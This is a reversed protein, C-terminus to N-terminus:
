KGDWYEVQTNNYVPIYVGYGCNKNISSYNGAILNNEVEKEVDFLITPSTYSIESKNDTSLTKGLTTLEGGIKCSTIASGTLDPVMTMAKRVESNNEDLEYYNMPCVAVLSRNMKYALMRQFYGTAYVSSNQLRFPRLAFGLVGSWAVIPRKGNNIKCNVICNNIDVHGGFGIFGAAVACNGPLLANDGTIDYTQVTGTNSCNVLTTYDKSNGMLAGAFGGTYVKDKAETVISANVACNYIDGTNNCGDFSIKFGDIKQPNNLVNSSIPAGIGLIGGVCVPHAKLGTPSTIYEADITIKGSNDCNDFEVSSNATRIRGAIGGLGCLHMGTTENAGSKPKITIPAENSCDKIILKCLASSVSRADGVIGGISVPFSNSSVDIIGSIAGKNVCSTIEISTEEESDYTPLVAAFASVYANSSSIEYTVVMENVCETIKGGAHLLYVFPAGNENLTLNGALTLNRIEGSVEYFLSSTANKRTITKGNGDFIYKFEKTISKLEVEDDNIDAGLTITNSGDGIWRYIDWDKTPTDNIFDAFENWDKASMIKGPGPNFKPTFPIIVGGKGALQTQSAPIKYSAFKDNVDKLTIILGDAYDYAPVGVMMVKGQAVGQANGEEDKESCDYSIVASLSRPTLTPTHDEGEFSLRWQGAINPSDGAQRIYISRINDKVSSNETDVSIAYFTTMHKFHLTNGESYAALIDANSDFSISKESNVLRYAQAKGTGNVQVTYVGSEYGKNQAATVAYYPGTVGEVNFSVQTGYEDLKNMKGSKVGNVTIYDETMFMTPCKGADIRKDDYWITTKTEVEDLSGTFTVVPGRKQSENSANPDALEKQCASISIAAFAVFLLNKM